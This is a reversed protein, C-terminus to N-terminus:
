RVPEGTGPHSVTFKLTVNEGAKPVHPITEFDLRYDRMDFPTAKVLLMGCRPCKGEKDSTYDPHMPCVWAVEEDGSESAVAKAAVSSQPSRAVSSALVPPTRVRSSVSLPVAASLVVPLAVAAVTRFTRKM